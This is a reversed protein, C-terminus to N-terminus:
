SLSKTQGNARLLLGSARCQWVTILLRSQNTSFIGSSSSCLESATPARKRCVAEARAIANASRGLDKACATHTTWLM